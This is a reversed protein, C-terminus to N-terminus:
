ATAARFFGSFARPKSSCNKLRRSGSGPSFTITSGRDFQPQLTYTGPAAGAVVSTDVSDTLLNVSYSANLWIRDMVKFSHGWETEVIANWRDSKLSDRDGNPLSDRASQTYNKMDQHMGFLRLSPVGPPSLLYQAYERVESGCSADTVSAGFTVPMYQQWLDWVLEGQGQHNIRGYVSNQDALTVYDPTQYIGSAKLKFKHAVSYLNLKAATGQKTVLVSDNYSGSVEPVARLYLKNDASKLEIKSNVSGAFDRNFVSDLGTRGPEKFGRYAGNVGLAVKDNLEVV